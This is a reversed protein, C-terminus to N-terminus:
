LKPLPLKGDDPSSNVVAGVTIWLVVGILCLIAAIVMVIIHWWKLDDLLFMFIFSCMENYFMNYVGLVSLTYSVTLLYPTAHMCEYLLVYFNRLPLVKDIPYPLM